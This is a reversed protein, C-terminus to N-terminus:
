KNLSYLFGWKSKKRNIKGDKFLLTLTKSVSKTSRTTSNKGDRTEYGALDSALPSHGWEKVWEKILILVLDKDIKESM